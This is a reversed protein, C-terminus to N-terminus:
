ATLRGPDPAVAAMVRNRGDRKAAYLARDARAVLEAPPEGPERIALGVSVTFAPEGSSASALRIEEALRIAAAGGTRAMLVAFEEGGFRAVVHGSSGAKDQLVDALRRLAGDGVVHGHVDNFRKFGDVDIMLLSLESRDRDAAAMLAALAEEFRRRNGVGTLPDSLASQALRLNARTLEVNTRQLEDLLRFADREANMQRLRVSGLQIICYAQFGAYLLCIPALVTLGDALLVPLHFAILIVVQAFTPGPAMYTRLTVAQVLVCGIALVALRMSPDAAIYLVAGTSGWLVALTVCTAAFLWLWRREDRGRGYRRYLEAAGIRVVLAAFLLGAAAFAAATAGSLCVQFIALAMVVAAMLFPRPDFFEDLLERKQRPDCLDAGLMLPFRALISTM